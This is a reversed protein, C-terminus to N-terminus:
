AAFFGLFAAVVADPAEEALYHGCPVSAAQVEDPRAHKVRWTAPVDFHRHMLGQEGWMVLLPCELRLHEDARDHVLDVSAAARYDECMAHVTAPDQICREYEARVAPPFADTASGWRALKARLYAIPAANILDEPLPAPQALFFWHYYGMALAMDTAAFLTRTPVIDLLALREVREAHDLALRHAVRAGRDHAGVQFRAFGLRQMLTAMDAAMTRKAYAAHDPDGPPKGSDGYGRLDACVVTWRRALRPAIAHWMVHSQPFGHLLLLPPGSGGIRACITTEGVDIFRREFNDFM